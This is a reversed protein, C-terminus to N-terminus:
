IGMENLIENVESVKVFSGKKTYAVYLKLYWLAKSLEQLEEDKGGLRDLYKRVQLNLAAKFKEPDQFVPIKQIYEIWQLGDMYDKYHKPNVANKKNTKWQFGKARAEYWEALDEETRIIFSTRNLQNEARIYHTGNQLEVEFTLVEDLSTTTEVRAHDDKRILDYVYEM